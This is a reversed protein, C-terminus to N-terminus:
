TQYVCEHTNFMNVVNGNTDYYNYFYRNKM